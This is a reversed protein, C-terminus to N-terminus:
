IHILMLWRTAYKEFTCVDVNDRADRGNNYINNEVFLTHSLRVASLFTKGSVCESTFDMFYRIQYVVLFGGLM